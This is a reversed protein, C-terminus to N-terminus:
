EHALAEKCLDVIHTASVNEPYPLRCTYGRALYTIEELAAEMKLMRKTLVGNQYERCDCACNHTVCKKARAKATM